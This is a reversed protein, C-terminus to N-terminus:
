TEKMGNAESDDGKCEETDIRVGLIGLLKTISSHSLELSYLANCSCVIKLDRAFNQLLFVVFGCGNILFLDRIIKIWVKDM